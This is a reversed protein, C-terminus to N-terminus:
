QADEKGGGTGLNRLTPAIEATNLLGATVLSSLVDNAYDSLNRGAWGTYAREFARDSDQAHKEYYDMMVRLQALRQAVRARAYARLRESVLDNARMRYNEINVLEYGPYHEHALRLSVLLAIDARTETQTLPRLKVYSLLVDLEEETMNLCMGLAILKDRLGRISMARGSRLEYLVGKLSAPLRGTEILEYVTADGLYLRLYEAMESPVRVTGENACFDEKHLEFWREMGGAEVADRFEESMPATKAGVQAAFAGRHRLSLRSLIEEYLATNNARGGQQRLLMKAVCDLPNKIYLGPYCNRLLLANLEQEDLELAMGLLKVRERSNPKASGKCWKDVATHTAGCRRALQSSSLGVAAMRSTIDNSLSYTMSSDLAQAILMVDNELLPLVAAQLGRGRADDVHHQSVAM